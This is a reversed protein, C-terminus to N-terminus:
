EQGYCFFAGDSCPEFPASRRAQAPPCPFRTVLWDLVNLAAITGSVRLSAMSAARAVTVSLTQSNICAADVPSLPSNLEACEACAQFSEALQQNIAQSKHFSDMMPRPIKNHSRPTGIGIM